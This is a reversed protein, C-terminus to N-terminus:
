SNPDGDEPGPLPLAIRNAVAFCGSHFLVTHCRPSFHDSGWRTRRITGHTSASFVCPANEQTRPSARSHADLVVKQVGEPPDHLALAPCKATSAERRKNAPVAQEPILTTAHSVLRRREM